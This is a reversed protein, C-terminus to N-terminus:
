PRCHAAVLVEVLQQRDGAGAGLGHPGGAAAGTPALWFELFSMIPKAPEIADHGPQTAPPAAPATKPDPPQAPGERPEPPEAPKLEPKAPEENTPEAPKTPQDEQDVARGGAGSTDPAVPPLPPYETKLTDTLLLDAAPVHRTLRSFTASKGDSKPDPFVPSGDRLIPRVMCPKRDKGHGLVEVLGHIDADKRHQRITRGQQHLRCPVGGQDPGEV